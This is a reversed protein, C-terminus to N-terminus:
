VSLMWHLVTLPHGLRVHVTLCINFVSTHWSLKVCNPKRAASRTIDALSALPWMALGLIQVLSQIINFLVELVSDSLTM